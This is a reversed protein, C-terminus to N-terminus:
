HREIEVAVLGADLEIDLRVTASDWNPSTYTDGSREFGDAAFSTLLSQREIRVGIEAPVEIKLEGVAMEIEVTADEEWDGSFDLRAEGILSSFELHEFRANGLELASFEAAASKMTLTEMRTGNPSGFRLSADSAGTMLELETLTLGGLELRTKSAGAGVKLATPVDPHLRLSLDGLESGNRPFSELDFEVDWDDFRVTAGDGSGDTVSPVALRLRGRDGEVRWNRYPEFRSGDYRLRADYLLLADSASLDLRGATYLIEVDLATIDNVQRAARFQRWEQAHTEAVVVLTALAAFTAVRLVKRREM